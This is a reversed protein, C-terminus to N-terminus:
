RVTVVFSYSQQVFGDPMTVRLISSGPALGKIAVNAEPKDPTLTVRSPTVSVLDAPTAALDVVVNAGARPLLTAVDQRSISVTLTDVGGVAITSATFSNFTRVLISSPRLVVPVRLDQYGPASFVIEVTGYSGLAQVAISAGQGASSVATVSAAGALKPDPHEPPGM